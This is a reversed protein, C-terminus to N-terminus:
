NAPPYQSGILSIDAVRSDYDHGNAYIEIDTLCYYDPFWEPDRLEITLRHWKYHEVPIYQVVDPWTVLQETQDPKATYICLVREHEPDVLNNRKARFRVMLPCQTGQEGALPLSQDLVRVWASFTLSRYESVDVGKQDSGLEQRIGTTFSTQSGSRVFGAINRREKPDCNTNVDLPWCTPFLKFFGSADPNLPAGYVQWTDARLLAPQISPPITTNNYAQEDHEDFNGDKILEWRAPVALGPGGTPDITVRSGELLSVIRGDKGHVYALGSRVAVDSIVPEPASPDSFLVRRQPTMVEISYSGGAELEVAAEGLLVIFSKNQYPQNTNLLDYRVYGGHQRLVITQENNNWRSVQMQDLSVDAGAWLDLNTQDFLQITAVQGYGATSSILVEDGANLAEQGEARQFRARGKSRLLVWEQAVDLEPARNILVSGNPEVTAYNVYRWVILTFTILLACSLIFAIILVFWALRMTRQRSMHRFPSQEVRQM